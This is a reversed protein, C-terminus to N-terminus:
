ENDEGEEGEKIEYEGGEYANEVSSKEEMDVDSELEIDSEENKNSEEKNEEFENDKKDM